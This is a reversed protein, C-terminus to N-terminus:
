KAHAAVITGQAVAVVREVEPGDPSDPDPRLDVVTCRCVAQRQSVSVAEARAIVTHGVAPRSYNIKFEATLADGGLATGGAFTLSNDALYSLVGGHFFGHQQNLEPRGVVTIEATGEGVATLEAGLFRSFPQTDFISRAFAEIDAAAPVTDERINDVFNMEYYTADAVDTPSRYL